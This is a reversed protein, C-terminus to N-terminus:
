DCIIISIIFICTLAYKQYMCLFNNILHFYLLFYKLSLERLISGLQMLLHKRTVVRKLKNQEM